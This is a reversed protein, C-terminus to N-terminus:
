ETRVRYGIVATGLDYMEDIAAITLEGLETDVIRDGRKLHWNATVLNKKTIIFERGEIEIESPGALQRSYNTPSVPVNTATVTPSGIRKLTVKRSHIKLLNNFADALM